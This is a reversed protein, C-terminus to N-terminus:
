QIKRYASYGHYPNRESEPPLKLYDGYSYRLFEERRKPAKVKTNEFQIYELEDLMDSSYYDWKEIRGPACYYEANETSLDLLMQEIQKLFFANGKRKYLICSPINLLKHLFTSGYMYGNVSSFAAKKALSKCLEGKKNWEEIEKLGGIPYFPYIDVFSGSVYDMNDFVVKYDNNCLRPIFFPYQTNNEWSHLALPLLKEANDSFYRSLKRYDDIRMGIDLDDDWPIFGKHRVAGLLTGYMIWYDIGLDSCIQDLQTLIDLTTLQTERTNMKEWKM